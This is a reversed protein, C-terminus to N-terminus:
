RKSVISLCFACRGALVRRFRILPVAAATPETPRMPYRLPEAPRATLVAGSFETSFM